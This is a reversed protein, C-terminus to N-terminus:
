RYYVKRIERVVGVHDAQVRKCWLALVLIKQNSDDGCVASADKTIKEAKGELRQRYSV